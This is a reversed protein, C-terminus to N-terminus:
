STKLSSRRKSATELVQQFTKQSERRRTLTAFTSAPSETAGSSARVLHNDPCPAVLNSNLFEDIANAPILILGGVRVHSLQRDAVLRRIRGEPWGSSAALDKPSLMQM